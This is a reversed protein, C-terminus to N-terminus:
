GADGEYGEVKMDSLGLEEEEQATREYEEVKLGPDLEGGVDSLSQVYSAAMPDELVLTFPVSGAIAGDMRAFFADWRAKEAEAMGDGTAGGEAGEEAGTAGDADFVTARLDDRVQTLLGEVTTFRGGLTGPEVSLELEPSSAACTASKLVDRSLDERTAVALTFRRGREPV